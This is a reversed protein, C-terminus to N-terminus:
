YEFIGSGLFEQLLSNKPINEIPIPEFYKLFECLRKAEAYEKIDKGINEYM